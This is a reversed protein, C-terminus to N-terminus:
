SRLCTNDQMGEADSAPIQSFRPRVLLRRGDRLVNAWAGPSSSVMVNEKPDSTSLILFFKVAEAVANPPLFDLLAPSAAGGGGPARGLCLKLAAEFAAETCRTCAMNSPSGRM